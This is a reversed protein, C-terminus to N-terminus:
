VVQKYFRFRFASGKGEESDVTLDGKQRKVISQAMALGIGASDKGANKGRYFRKFIYPLDEKDIGNGSDAVIIETFLPNESFTVSLRGGEPTHEVCNKMVNLLAEATWDVDGTFSAAPDGEVTVTQNKVDMPIIIPEIAQEIVDTVYVKEESFVATGADIKSLKLLTTLLWDMRSVQSQIRKTFTERQERDLDENGLLDAMLTMSTLPTKLQHSIDAIADALRQQDNKYMAGQESLMRTVKYIESRLISLEGEENDRVDLDTEGACIRRLAEALKEIRGYRNKLFGWEVALMVASFIACALGFVPGAFFAAATLAACFAGMATFQQRIEKNRWM